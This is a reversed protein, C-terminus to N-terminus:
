NCFDIILDLLDNPIFIPDCDYFLNFGKYIKNKEYKKLINFIPKNNKSTYIFINEGNNNEINVDIQECKLLKNVISLHNTYSAFILATDGDEDQLNVNIEECKLLRNVIDLHGNKSARMLHTSYYEKYNYEKYNVDIRKDELLIYIINFLKLELAWTLITDLINGDESRM